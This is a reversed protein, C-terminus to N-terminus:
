LKFLWGLHFAWFANRTSLRSQNNQLVTNPVVQLFGHQYDLGFMFGPKTEMGLSFTYGFDFRQFNDNPGNGIMVSQSPSGLTKMTGSVLAGTYLGLGIWPRGWDFGPSFVFEVPVDVYRLKYNTNPQFGNNNYNDNDAPISGGAGIYEVGPRIYFLKATDLPIDVFVGGFFHTLAGSNVNQINDGENVGKYANILRSFDAGAKVGISLQAHTTLSLLLSFFLVTCLIRM